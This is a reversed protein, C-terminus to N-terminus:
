GPHPFSFFAVNAWFTPVGGQPYFTVLTPIGGWGGRLFLFFSAVNLPPCLMQETQCLIPLSLPWARAGM